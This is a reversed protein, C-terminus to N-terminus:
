KEQEKQQVTALIDGIQSRLEKETQEEGSKNRYCAAAVVRVEEGFIGAQAQQVWELLKEKSLTLIGAININPKSAKRESLAKRRLQYQVGKRVTDNVRQLFADVDVGQEKLDSGLQETTLDSDDQLFAILKDWAAAKDNTVM